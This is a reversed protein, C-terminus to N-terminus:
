YDYIIVFIIISIEESETLPKEQFVAFFGNESRKKEDTKEKCDIKEKKRLFELFPISM